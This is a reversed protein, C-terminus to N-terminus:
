LRRRGGSQLQLDLELLPAATSITPLLAYLLFGFLRLACLRGCAVLLVGPLSPAVLRCVPRRAPFARVSFPLALGAFTRLLRLPCAFSLLACIPGCFAVLAAPVFVAGCRALSSFSMLLWCPTASLLVPGRSLASFVCMLWFM